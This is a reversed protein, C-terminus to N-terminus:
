TNCSSPPAPEDALLSFDFVGDPGCLSLEADLSDYRAVQVDTTEQAFYRILLDFVQQNTHAISLLRIRRPMLEEESLRPCESAVAHLVAMAERLHEPQLHARMVAIVRTASIM